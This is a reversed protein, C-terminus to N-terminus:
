EDVRRGGRLSRVVGFLLVLVLVLVL